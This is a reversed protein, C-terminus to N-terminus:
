KPAVEEMRFGVGRMTHLLPARGRDIKRRLYSIYVDLVNDYGGFDYQWVHQLIMSRTVTKGAHRMLYELLSYETASLTIPTGARAARRSAPDLTLDGVQLVAPASTGRRLLARMRALLEAVEFPKVIYDDAGADLGAIKDELADRATLMLIPTTVSRERLRRCVEVGDAGPLMWDLLMLDFPQALAKDLAELGDMCGQPAYGAEQTAQTLFRLVSPDDEAILVNM